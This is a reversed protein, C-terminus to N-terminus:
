SSRDNRHHKGLEPMESSITIKQRMLLLWKKISVGLCVYIIVWFLIQGGLVEPSCLEPPQLSDWPPRMAVNRAAESFVSWPTLSALASACLGQSALGQKGAVHKSSGQPLGLPSSPVSPSACVLSAM